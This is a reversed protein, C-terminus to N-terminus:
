KAFSRRGRRRRGRMLAQPETASRSRVQAARWARGFATRSHGLVSDIALARISRFTSKGRAGTELKGRVLAELWVIAALILSPWADWHKRAYNLLSHRTLLRLRPTLERRHLPSHHEIALGPEHRISWGARRARRCFDADEYYLFFGRDFGGLEEFCERRVLVGCGTVWSVERGEGTWTRCKRTERPRLQGILTSLLTPDSGVSGQLNGGPDRVRFGIAGTKTTVGAREIYAMVRDLWGPGVTVDPNLLLFWDGRSLRCGENVGSSFGCNKRLFRLSVGNKRRLRRRIPHHPSHNDVIVVEARGLPITSSAMLQRVLRATNQWQRYNVIVVSVVPRSAQQSPLHQSNSGVRNRSITTGSISAM